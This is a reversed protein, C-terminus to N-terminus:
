LTKPSLIPFFDKPGLDHYLAESMAVDAHDM